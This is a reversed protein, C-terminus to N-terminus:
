LGQKRASKELRSEKKEKVINEWELFLSEKNPRNFKTNEVLPRAKEGTPAQEIDADLLHAIAHFPLQLQAQDLGFHAFRLEFQKPCLHVRMKKAIREGRDLGSQALLQWINAAHHLREGIIEVIGKGVSIVVKHEHSFLIVGEHSIEGQFLSTKVPFEVDVALDVILRPLGQNRPDNKLRQNLVCDLVAKFGRGRGQLHPKM